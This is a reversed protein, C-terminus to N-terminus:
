QCLRQITHWIAGYTTLTTALHVAAFTLVGFTFAATYSLGWRAARELLELRTPVEATRQAHKRM